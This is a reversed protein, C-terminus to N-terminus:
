DAPSHTVLPSGSHESLTTLWSSLFDNAVGGHPPAADIFAGDSSELCIQRVIELQRM